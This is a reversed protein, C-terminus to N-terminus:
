LDSVTIKGLITRGDSALIWAACAQGSHRRTTVCIRNLGAVHNFPTMVLVEDVAYNSKKGNRRHDETALAVYVESRPISWIKDLLESKLSPLCM